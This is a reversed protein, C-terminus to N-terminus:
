AILDPGQTAYLVRQRYSEPTEILFKTQESLALLDNDGTILLDAKGSQALDLFIQDKADRCRIPCVETVQIIECYSLYDGLLEIQYEASLKLKRYGLVWKLEAATAQSVLPV